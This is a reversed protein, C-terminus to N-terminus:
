SKPKRVNRLSKLFPGFNEPPALDHKAHSFRTFTPWFKRIGDADIPDFTRISLPDLQYAGCYKAGFALRPKDFRRLEILEALAVVVGTYQFLIITGPEAKLGASPFLFEGNCDPLRNLFFVDQVQTADWQIFEPDKQSMPLIRVAPPILGMSDDGHIQMFGIAALHLKVITIRFEIQESRM